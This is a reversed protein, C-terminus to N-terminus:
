DEYSCSAQQVFIVYLNDYNIRLCRKRWKEVAENFSDYHLFNVVIEGRLLGKQYVGSNTIDEFEAQLDCYYKLNSLIEVYDPATIFLNVFPSNFRLGFDNLVM